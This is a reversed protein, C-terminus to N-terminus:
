DSLLFQLVAGPRLECDVPWPIYRGSICLSKGSLELRAVSLVQPEIGENRRLGRTLLSCAINSARELTVWGKTATHKAKRRRSSTDNSCPGTYVTLNFPSTNDKVFVWKSTLPGVWFQNVGQLLAITGLVYAQAVEPNRVSTFNNLIDPHALTWAALLGSSLSISIVFYVPFTRHQLAGFQQRALVPTDSDCKCKLSHSCVCHGIHLSM